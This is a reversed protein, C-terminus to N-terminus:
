SKELIRRIDDETTLLLRKFIFYAPISIILILTGLLMFITKISLFNSLLGYITAMVPSSSTVFITILSNTRGLIKNPILKIILSELPINLLSSGIGLFLTYLPELCPIDVIAILYFFISFTFIIISFYKANLLRASFRHGLIGGLLLGLSFSLVFATYALAGTHFVDYFLGAAFVYLAIFVGNLSLSLILAPLIFRIIRFVHSYSLEVINKKRNTRIESSPFSLIISVLSTVLLLDPFLSPSFSASIGGILIGSIESLATSITEISMAKALYESEVLNKVLTYFIDSSILSFISSILDLFYILLLSFYFLLPLYSLFLIVSSIFMIKERNFKDLIYGEPISVLLYGLLSFTPILSVFFISNYETIIKWMFFISFMLSSLRIFSKAILFRLFNRKM